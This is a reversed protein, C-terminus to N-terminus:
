RRSRARVIQRARRPDARTVTLTTAGVNGFLDVAQIEITTTGIDTRVPFSFSSTGTATSFASARRNFITRYRVQDVLVNDTATGSVTISSRTTTSRAQTPATVVVSPAIGEYVPAAIDVLAAGGGITGYFTLPNGYGYDVGFLFSSVSAAPTLSAFMRGSLGSVDMGCNTSTNFGVRDRSFIQGTNPSVTGGETGITVVRDTGVDIGYLTTSFAGAFNNTYAACTVNPNIGFSTDSSQFALSTDVSVVAGNDPNIRLNEDADTVVRIRDVTPNFDVAASTGNLAPTFPTAGIQSAIGTALNLVYVRSTSGIAFLQGNAPRFDAGLVTEGTQLGTIATTSVLKAPNNSDFRVLQNGTTIGFMPEASASASLFFASSIM